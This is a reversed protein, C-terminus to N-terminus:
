RTEGGLEAFRIGPNHALAAAIAEEAHVPVKVVHVDLPGLRGKSHGGHRQLIAEFDAPGVGAKPAVLIQGPVWRQEGSAANTATPIAVAGSILISALLWRTLCNLM